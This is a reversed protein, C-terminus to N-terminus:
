HFYRFRNKEPISRVGSGIDNWFYAFRDVFSVNEAQMAVPPLLDINKYFLVVFRLIHTKFRSVKLCLPESETSMTDLADLLVEVMEAFIVADDVFDIDTIWAEELSIESDTKKM